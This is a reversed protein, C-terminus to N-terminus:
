GLRGTHTDREEGQTLHAQKGTLKEEAPQHKLQNM